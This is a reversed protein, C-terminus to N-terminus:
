KWKQQEERSLYRVAPAAGAVPAGPPWWQVLCSGATAGAKGPQGTAPDIFRVRGELFTVGHARTVYQHWARTDTRAFFLAVVLAGGQAAQYFKACWALLGGGARSYPPNCWVVQQGWDAALADRRAPDPHDPGYWAPALATAQRAAADVEFCWGHPLQEEAYRLLWPPTCWDDKGTGLHFGLGPVAQGSWGAPAQRRTVGTVGGRTVGELPRGGANDSATM